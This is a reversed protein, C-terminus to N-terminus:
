FTPYTHEWSSMRSSPHLGGDGGDALLERNAHSTSANEPTPVGQIEKTCSECSSSSRGEASIVQPSYERYWSVSSTVVKKREYVMLLPYM